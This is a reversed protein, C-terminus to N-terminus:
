DVESDSQEMDNIQLSMKLRATEAANRKPRTVLKGEDRGEENKKMTEADTGTHIELPYLLQLPRKITTAGSSSSVRVVAARVCGDRGEMLRQVRGLKWFTRPHSEDHVLVIDGLTVSRKRKNPVAAYRHVDRLDSLYEDRWRRWFQGLLRQTHEMRRTVSSHDSSFMFDDDQTALVQSRLLGLTSHREVEIVVTQLEDLTLKASGISKKLCRKVSGILREYFGGWWPAKEVIFCWEIRLWAFYDKVVPDTQIRALEKNAAKFTRSNDSIVKAPTGRRSAFRRFCRLFADTTMDPVLELHLARTVCCTFLSIWIKDGTGKWQEFKADQVLIRQCAKIWYLESLNLDNGSMESNVTGQMRGTKTKVMQIFKLVYATTRLLKQLSSFNECNIVAEIDSTILLSYVEEFRQRDNMRLESTCEKLTAEELPPDDDIPEDCVFSPGMLWLTDNAIKSLDTGRSPLDAPNTKGACHKWIQVPTLQRIERVRNEVFQRWEKDCGRIWFYHLRTYCGSDTEVRLYVVAAYAQISADCFGVLGCSRSKEGMDFYCRPIIVCQVQKLDNVLRKWELLLEGTLPEDWDIKNICLKQFLMYSEDDAATNKQDSPVVDAGQCEQMDIRRQLVPCNTRFKRLNFAGELLCCKAKKYLQFTEQENCAGFTVDDVYISREFKEVFQQDVEKYRNMHHKITANLLFPSSSVGFVVRAFRLVKIRPLESNVDDLWLFRLVDKDEDAVSVMLFAKEIDAILGVPYTRFRILIDVIRQGFSPGAYLCNNLSPGTTRASADYVIWLKTTSKDERIVGHHPLYHLKGIKGSTWPDEVIEVIGKNIQDQIINDYECLIHPFQRLRKILGFLRTQCLNFNDPLPPHYSKWPLHVSYRGDQFVVNQTFEEYVSSEEAKTGIAELDWFKKLTDDLTADTCGITSVEALCGLLQGLSCGVWSLRLPQPATEKVHEEQSLGADSGFTKVVLTETRQTPLKLIDRVRNVVYSRQSGTDFIIRTNHSVTPNGPRYVMVNATQLFVPTRVGVFMTMVAPQSTQSTKTSHSTSAGQSIASSLKSRQPAKSPDSNWTSSGSCISIHHRRGCASCRLSSRCERARHNRKLCVFCRGNKMLISKKEEIDTVRTCHSPQHDQECYCCTGHEFKAGSEREIIKLIAEFEWKDQPVERSIILCLEQPIKSLLISSLLSGYSTPDVGLAKLSRVQAEVKDFLHRLGRTNHPSALPELHLLIEMHKSIQQQKNGFRKKLLAIAEEYNSSTLALGAIAEAAIGDVLSHLYNFKDVSSLDPNLHISSEYSDWFTAWSTLDGDFKRLSLKPLKVIDAQEIENSVDDEAEIQSQIEGDLKKIIEYKERLKKQQQELKPISREQAELATKADAIIRGVTAKHGARVRKKKTIEASM